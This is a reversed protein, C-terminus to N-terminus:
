DSRQCGRGRRGRSGLVWRDEQATFPNRGDAVRQPCRQELLELLVVDLRYALGVPGRDHERPVHFDHLFAHAPLEPLRHLGPGVRHVDRSFRAVSVRHRHRRRPREAEVRLEAALPEVFVRPHDRRVDGVLNAREPVLAPGKLGGSATWSSGGVGQRACRRRSSACNTAAVRRRVARTVDDCFAQLQPEALAAIRAKWAVDMFIQCYEAVSAFALSMPRSEVRVDVFGADQLLAEMEGPVSFRFPGPVGPAPPTLSLHKAGVPFIVNFFPSKSLEDWTVITIRGGAKLVRYAERIARGPDPCFMLGYANTVADVSADDITLQEADMTRCEINELGAAAAAASTVAIMDPSIDSAVVTGGPGVVAAAALAPYGAGCAVDLVRTGPAWGAREVFWDTVPAFERETWALWAAWGGAVANWHKTQQEKFQQTTATDTV